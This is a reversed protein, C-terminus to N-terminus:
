QSFFSCIFNVIKKYMKMAKRDTKWDTSTKTYKQKCNLEKNLLKIRSSLEKNLTVRLLTKSYKRWLLRLKEVVGLIYKAVFSIHHTQYTHPSSRLICLQHGDM